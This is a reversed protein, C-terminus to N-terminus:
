SPPDHEYMCDAVLIHRTVFLKVYCRLLFCVTVLVNCVTLVAVNLTWKVDQPNDFDPTVGPPPPAFGVRGQPDSNSTTM